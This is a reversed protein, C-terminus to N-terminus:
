ARSGLHKLTTRLGDELSTSPTWGRAELRGADLASRQLEGPRPEDHVVEVSRGAAGQIANALENVSTEAGTGVNFALQDISPAGEIAMETALLNARAVDGVYVYDRTQKGDGFITLPEGELVARGFIAVVGAEGHPDQRPGYVNAYRLAIAELGHVRWYFRLYHEGALKTIGYPSDPRKPHREAVPLGEPEGYVTGGSSAFVVRDVGHDVCAELVNLTGDVNVAADFRPEDVSVRVDMQAAHHNVVEFGRKEFLADLEDSRVDMEVLEVGEPVNARQGSSLDDLAVVAWGAERYAEAVHSGIFGAGGTVLATPASDPAAVM